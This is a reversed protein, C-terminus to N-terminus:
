LGGPGGPQRGGQMQMWTQMGAAVVAKILETPTYSDARLATGETSFTGGIPPLDPPLQMQVNMGMGSAANAITTVIQDLPVYFEGIRQQPLQAAVMKVGAVQSLPNQNAKAAAIASSLAADNLDMGILMKEGVQGSYITAGNPGYMWNMMMQAQAAGPGGAQMNFQSTTVDFTVGDLTKGAPKSETKIADAGAGGFSKMLDNQSKIMDVYSSKLTAVDGWQLAVFQMLPDQGLQGTPALMGFTQGQLAGFYKKFSDVYKQFAAAQDGGVDAMEKSIPDM